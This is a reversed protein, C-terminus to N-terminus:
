EVVGIVTAFRQGKVDAPPDSVMRSIQGDLFLADECGLQRFCEAFTWLNVRTKRKTIVFVVQGEKDVGVGNRILESKSGENFAPHVKGDRMLLPGSQVAYWLSAKEEEAWSTFEESVVVGASFEEGTRTIYFVGNPKLFFNGKGPKLNLANEIKGREVYFGSPKLNPEFIGGNILMKVESAGDALIKRRAESFRFLPKGEENRWVMRVKEPAARVVRFEKGKLTFIEEATLLSLGCLFCLFFSVLQM